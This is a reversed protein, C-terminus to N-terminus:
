RPMFLLPVGWPSDGCHSEGLAKFMQVGGFKGEFLVTNNLPNFARIMRLLLVELCGAKLLIIQDNQCLEMFGDIRKAFEVVYQIANSIHLSCQQWM